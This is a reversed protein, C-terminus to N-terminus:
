FAQGIGVYAAIPAQGPRRDLPTALDLRIPGIATYYRLGLGAGAYLPERFDPFSSSYASGVDLFPVLGITPTIKIRAELSGELLSLGGIPTGAANTPSLTRYGYGRVSGGGGAFFRLTDPISTLDAGILSGTAIRAALVYKGDDDLAHYASAQVKSQMLNISSGFARAYSSLSALVRVGRTPDLPNDTTDYSLSLPLGVLTYDIAGLVDESRGREVEVGGQAFLDASFRHRLALTADAVEGSYSDTKDRTLSADALLDNRSGGLAPQLYSAALRGTLNQYKFGGSNQFGKGGSPTFFGASADLRLREARGFLNRDGWYTNLSPGDVTSYLASFGVFHPKRASVLATVPLDGAADLKEGPIMRASGLAEIASLSKANAALAQPTAADGRRVYIYSRIVSPDVSKAGKVAVAGIAAKPGPDVTMAVEMLGTRRDVVPAIKLVRALPRSLGREYALIQAGAALVAAATAPAGPAAGALKAPLLKPDLPQMDPGFVRLAGLVYRRGLLATFHVPVVARGRLRDAAAAAATTGGTRIDIPSGALSARVQADFYGAGWLADMMRPLDGDVRRALSDGDPPADHRLRWATSADKLAQTLAASAPRTAVDITYPLSDPTAAPRQQTKGFLGFFDFAHAPSLGCPFSFILAAAALGALRGVPKATSLM